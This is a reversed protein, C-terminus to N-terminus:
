QVAITVINSTQGSIGLVLSVASGPVVTSPVLANVQYLGVLGPALGSFNVSASVGGIMVTPMNPTSSLPSASAASGTAPQSSVPGLGSCYITIYQGRPAPATPTVLQGTSALTIVGPGSGSSNVTFIGPAALGLTVTQAESVGASTTAQISATNQGSLEWPIQANIQSPSVYFLPIAKGSITLTVGGLTTSLPIASAGAAGNSFSSGFVSVIGGPAVLTRYAAGDVVGSANVTPAPLVVPQLVRIVNFGDADYIKGAGDMALGYPALQASTAPGGDGSFGFTLPTGAITTITGNAASVMRVVSNFSDAIFVDGAADVVLGYPQDLEANIAPGGDGSFGPTGTGAVATIIGAPSVKRVRSGNRFADGHESIYLNGAPDLAVSMPYTLAASTAPGGNSTSSGGGAVTTIIGNPTVKRILGEGYDAIYLNSATDMAVGQPEYLRASTAPGGDGLPIASFGSIGSGGSGGSGAVTSITGNPSVMRIRNNYSDAIYLNGQADVAVAVPLALEASTAPGGDGSFSCTGNGAVTSITGNSSVKRIRCNTTDAIYVNGSADVAVGNPSYLQAATAPGGDGFSGSYSFQIGAFTTTNGKTDMKFIADNGEAAIYLNGSADLIVDYPTSLATGTGGAVTSIIGGEKVMRIRNNRSDAIYVDGAADVAVGTPYNLEAQLAQGGDGGFGPGRNGAVTTIIGSPSVKRISDYEADAIYLNGTADVTLGFLYGLATSTAPGGDGPSGLFPNAGLTGGGAVTTITGATSIMRVRANGYDAVYLNGTNDLAVASPASLQANAAPGGDGSFGATGTGAFTTIVGSPSIKRLRNNARDAVYLNGTADLALGVPGSLPANVALGGDGSYGTRMNGAIRTLTGTADVKFVCNLASFYVNGAADSALAQPAGVAVSAAPAPTPPPAGGAITSITYSQASVTLTAFSTLAFLSSIAFWFKLGINPLIGGGM